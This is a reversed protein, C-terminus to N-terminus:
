YNEALLDYGSVSRLLLQRCLRKELLRDRKPSVCSAIRPGRLPTEVLSLMALLLDVIEFPFGGLQSKLDGFSVCSLLSLKQLSRMEVGFM